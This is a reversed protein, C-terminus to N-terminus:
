FSVVRSWLKKQNEPQRHQHSEIHKKPPEKTTTFQGLLYIQCKQRDFGDRFCTQNSVLWKNWSRMISFITWIGRFWGLSHAIMKSHPNPPHFPHHITFPPDWLSNDHDSARRHSRGQLTFRDILKQSGCCMMWCVVWLVVRLMYCLVVCWSVVFSVCCFKLCMQQLDWM